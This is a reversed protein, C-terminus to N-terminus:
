LSIVSHLYPSFSNSWAFIPSSEMERLEQSILCWFTAITPRDPSVTPGSSESCVAKWTAPVIAHPSRNGETSSFARKLQLLSGLPLVSWLELGGEGGSWKERRQPKEERCGLLATSNGWIGTHARSRSITGNIIHLSACVTPLTDTSPHWGSLFNSHSGGLSSVSGICAFLCWVGWVM